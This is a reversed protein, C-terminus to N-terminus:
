AVFDIMGAASLAAVRLAHIGRRPGDPEAATDSDFGDGRQSSQQHAGRDPQGNPQRRLGIDLKELDIGEGSLAERLRQVTSGIM